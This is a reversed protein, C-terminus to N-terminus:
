QTWISFAIPLAVEIPPIPAAFLQPHVHPRRWDSIAMSRPCRGSHRRGDVISRVIVPSGSCRRVTPSPPATPVPDSRSGSCSGPVTTCDYSRLRPSRALASDNDGTELPARDRDIASRARHWRQRENLSRPPKLSSPLQQRRNRTSSRRGCTCDYEIARRCDGHRHAGCRVRAHASRARGVATGM